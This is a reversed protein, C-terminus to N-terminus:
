LEQAQTTISEKREYNKRERKGTAKDSVKGKKSRERKFHIPKFAGTTAEYHKIM